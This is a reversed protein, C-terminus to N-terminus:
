KKNKSIRLKFKVNATFTIRLRDLTILERLRGSRRVYVSVSIATYVMATQVMVNLLLAGAYKLCRLFIQLYGAQRQAPETELGIHRSAGATSEVRRSPARVLCPADKPSFDLDPNRSGFVSKANKQCIWFRIMFRYFGCEPHIRRILNLDPNKLNM